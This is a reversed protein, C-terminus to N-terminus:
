ALTGENKWKCCADFTARGVVFLFEDAEVIVTEGPLAPDCLFTEGPQFQRERGFIATTARFAKVVRYLILM